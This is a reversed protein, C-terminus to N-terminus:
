GRSSVLQPYDAVTSTADAIPQDISVPQGFQTLTLRFGVIAADSRLSSFSSLFMARAMTSPATNMPM